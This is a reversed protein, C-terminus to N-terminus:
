QLSFTKTKQTPRLLDTGMAGVVKGRRGPAVPESAINLMTKKM